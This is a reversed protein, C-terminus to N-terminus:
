VQTQLAATLPGFAPLSPTLGLAVLREVSIPWEARPQQPLFARVRALDAGRWQALPKGDLSVSGADPSLLGALCRLLTSKGAGNAGIVATFRGDTLAVDARRLIERGGRRVTVGQGILSTM